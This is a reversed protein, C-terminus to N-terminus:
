LKTFYIAYGEIRRLEEWMNQSKYDIVVDAGLSTVLDVADTGCTVTVEAGWAKM